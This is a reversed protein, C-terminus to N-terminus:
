PHTDTRPVRGLPGDELDTSILYLPKGIASNLTVGIYEAVVGMMLLIVGTSLLMVVMLSSWGTEHVHGALRSVAIYLALIVGALAIIIGLASFVRLGRTGSSLVMRWFHSLLRRLSYGSPRDGEARLEVPCFATTPNVWGMAVDLFVGAGAYAGVSRGVSGLVLRYSQFDTTQGGLLRMILTKTLKSATNRVFGHPAANTPDAYVLTARQEMATDLFDAIFRPDHQGDEDMTVIWDGGTSAMGALTAPHQGFNRSLWIPRVYDHCAALDRITQASDDPGHDHVLLVEAVRYAHGGPTLREEVQQALEDLLTPLTAAGQYVPIVVSILHTSDPAPSHDVALIRVAVTM